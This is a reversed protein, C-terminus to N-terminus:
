QLLNGISYKTTNCFFSSYVNLGKRNTYYKRYVHLVPAGVNIHFVKAIEKTAGAAVLEQEAKLIEVGFKERLTEFLSNHVFSKENLLPLAIGTIYTYELMIPDDKAMRLRKLCVAGLAREEDSLPYFFNEDWQYHYPQELFVTKTEVDANSLVESFGKISFLGLMQRKPEIVITGKGKQKIVYGEQVLQELAQRVTSRALNYKACLENESPLIDGPKLTGKIIKKRLIETLRQYHHKM